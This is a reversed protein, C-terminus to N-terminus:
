PVMGAPLFGKARLLSEVILATAADKHPDDGWSGDRNQRAILWPIYRFIGVRSYPHDFMALVHLFVAQSCHLFRDSRPSDITGDPRQRGVLTGTHLTALERLRKDRVHWYARMSMPECTGVYSPMRLPYIDKGGKRQHGTRGLVPQRNPDMETLGNEGDIGGFAYRAAEAERRAAIKADIGREIEDASLVGDRTRIGHGLQAACECWGVLLTSKLARQVRRNKEYGLRVLADLVCGNPWLIRPGCSERIMPDAEAALELEKPKRDRFRKKERLCVRQREVLDDTLFFMGPNVASEDRALLWEAAAKVAKRRASVGLEHLEKLMRATLMVKGDWSGDGSQSALRREILATRLAADGADPCGLLRRARWAEFSERGALFRRVDRKLKKKAHKKALRPLLAAPAMNTTASRTVLLPTEVDSVGSREGERFAFDLKKVAAARERQIVAVHDDPALDLRAFVDEPLCLRSGKVDAAVAGAAKKPTLLVERNVHLYLPGDTVGLHRRVERRLSIKRQRTAKVIALVQPLPSGM